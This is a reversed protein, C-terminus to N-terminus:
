REIRDRYAYWGVVEMRDLLLLLAGINSIQPTYFVGENDNSARLSFVGENENSARLTFYGRMTM